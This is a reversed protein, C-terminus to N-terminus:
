KTFWHNLKGTSRDCIDFTKAMFARAADRDSLGRFPNRDKGKTPPPALRLKFNSWLELYETALEALEASEVAVVLSTTNRNVGELIRAIRAVAAGWREGSKQPNRHLVGVREIQARAARGHNVRVGNQAAAAALANERPRPPSPDKPATSRNDLDGAARARDVLQCDAIVQAEIEAATAPIHAREYSRTYSQVLRDRLEQPTAPAPKM